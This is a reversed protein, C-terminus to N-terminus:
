RGTDFHSQSSSSLLALLLQIDLPTYLNDTPCSSSQYRERSSKTNPSANNYLTFRDPKAPATQSPDLTRDPRCLHLNPWVKKDGRMALELFEIRFPIVKGWCCCSNHNSLKHSGENPIPPTSNSYRSSRLILCHFDVGFALSVSVAKGAVKGAVM